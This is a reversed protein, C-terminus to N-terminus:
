LVAPLGFRAIIPGASATRDERGGTLDFTVIDTVLGNEIELVDLAFAKYEAAGPPRRYIAVAPQRNARTLVCRFDRFEPTGLGGEVWAAVCADRGVIRVPEPPMRFRVDDRLTAALAALDCRETASVYDALLKREEDESPIRGTRPRFGTLQQDRLAARARQLAANLAAASLSLLEAAEAASWDLVDCLILAARQKAPLCQIAVMFALEISERAVLRADPAPTEGSTSDLIRDPYPELWPVHPLTGTEAEASTAFTGWRRRKSADLFDLCANTAIRYLWARVTARGAFSQRGRWAKLFTEQVLDEADTLSGLMRYCHVRLEARYGAALLGFTAEDAGQLAAIIVANERSPEADKAVEM